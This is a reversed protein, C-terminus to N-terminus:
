RRRARGDIGGGADERRDGGPEERRGFGDARRSRWRGVRCGVGFRSWWGGTAGGAERREVPEVGVDRVGLLLVREHVAYFDDRRIREESGVFRKRWSERWEPNKEHLAVNARFLFPKGPGRNEVFAARNFREYADLFEDSWLFRNTYVLRDTARKTATAADPSIALWEGQYMFYCFTKNLHGLFERLVEMRWAADIQSIMRRRELKLLYSKGLLGLAVVSLPTLVSTVLRLWDFLSPNQPM